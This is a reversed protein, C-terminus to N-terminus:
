KVSKNSVVVLIVGVSFLITEIIIWQNGFNGLPGDVLITTARSLAYFGWFMTLFSLAYPRNKFFLYLLSVAIALGVGGYIGRLSSMADTNEINLGVLDMTAQPSIFSQLSVLSLALVSFLIYTAVIISKLNQKKM